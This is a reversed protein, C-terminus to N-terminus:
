SKQAKVVADLKDSVYKTFINPYSNKQMYQLANKYLEELYVFYVALQEKTNPVGPMLLKKAIILEQATIKEYVETIFRNAFEAESPPLYKKADSVFADVSKFRALEVCCYDPSAGPGMSIRKFAEMWAVIFVDRSVKNYIKEESVYMLFCDQLCFNNGFADRLESSTSAPFKKHEYNLTKIISLAKEYSGQAVYLQPLILKAQYCYESVSGEGQCYGNYNSEIEKILMDLKAGQAIPMQIKEIEEAKADWNQPKTCATSSLFTFILITVIARNM